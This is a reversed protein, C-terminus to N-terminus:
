QPGVCFHTHMFYGVKHEASVLKDDEGVDSSHEGVFKRKRERALHIPWDCEEEQYLNRRQVEKVQNRGPVLYNSAMNDTSHGSRTSSLSDVILRSAAVLLGDATWKKDM